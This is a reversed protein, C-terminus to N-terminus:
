ELSHINERLSLLKIAIRELEDFAKKFRVPDQRKNEYDYTDEFEKEGEFIAEYFTKVKNSSIRNKMRYLVTEKVHNDACIILDSSVIHEEVESDWPNRHLLHPVGRKKLEFSIEEYLSDEDPFEEKGAIGASFANLNIQQQIAHHILYQELVQSRLINGYCILSWNRNNNDM